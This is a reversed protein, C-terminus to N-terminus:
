STRVKFGLIYIKLHVNYKEQTQDHYAFFLKTDYLLDLNPHTDETGKAAMICYLATIAKKQKKRKERKM